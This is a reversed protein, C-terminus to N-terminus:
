KLVSRNCGPQVVNIRIAVKGKPHIEISNLKSM